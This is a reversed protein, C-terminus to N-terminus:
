NGWIATYEYPARPRSVETVTTAVITPPTRPEGAAPPSLVGEIQLWQNNRRGTPDARVAIEVAEADAACCFIVFRSLRYGAGDEPQSVFGVVRVPVDHLLHADGVAARSWFEVMPMPVAGGVPRGVPPDAVPGSTPRALRARVANAGLPSPPVVTLLVAPVLLLWGVGLGSHPHREHPDAIADDSAAGRGRGALLGKPPLLGLVGLLLGSALVLPRAGPRVYNLSVDSAGLWAALAGVILLLASRDRERIV